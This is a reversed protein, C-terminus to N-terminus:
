LNFFRLNKNLQSILNWFREDRDTTSLVQINLKADTIEMFKVRNKWGYIGIEQNIWIDNKRKKIYFKSNMKLVMFKKFNNNIFSFAEIVYDNAQKVFYLWM